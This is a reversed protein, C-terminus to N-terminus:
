ILHMILLQEVLTTLLKEPRLLLYFKQIVLLDLMKEIIDLPRIFSQYMAKKLRSKVTEAGGTIFHYQPEDSTKVSNLIHMLYDRQKTNLSDCLDYYDQDSLKDPLRYKKAEIQVSGEDGTDFM